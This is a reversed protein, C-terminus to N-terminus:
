AFGSALPYILAIKSLINFYNIFSVLALFSNLRLHVHHNNKNALTKNTNATAIAQVM